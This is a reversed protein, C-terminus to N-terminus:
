DGAANVCSFAQDHKLLPDNNFTTVATVSPIFSTSPFLLAAPPNPLLPFLLPVARTLLRVSTQDMTPEGYQGNKLADAAGYLAAPDFPTGGFSPQDPVADPEAPVFPKQGYPLNSDWGGPLGGEGATAEGAQEDQQPGPQSEEQM